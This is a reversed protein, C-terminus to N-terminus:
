ALAVEVIVVNDIVLTDSRCCRRYQGWFRFVFQLFAVRLLRFVDEVGEARTADLGIPLRLRRPGQSGCRELNEWQCATSSGVCGGTLPENLQSYRGREGLRASVFAYLLPLSSISALYGTLSNARVLEVSVRNTQLTTSKSPKLSLM